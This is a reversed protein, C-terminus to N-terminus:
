SCTQAKMPRRRSPTAAALGVVEWKPQETM